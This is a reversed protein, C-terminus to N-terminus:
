QGETDAKVIFQHTLEDFHISYLIEAVSGDEVKSVTFHNKTAHMEYWQGDVQVLQTEEEYEAMAIPNSGSWFEVLNFVFFDLFTAAGYVPVVNMGYFLLTQAFKNSTVSENWSYVNRTLQFTGFCSTMFAGMAALLLILTIKRLWKM